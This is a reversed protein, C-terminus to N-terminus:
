NQFWQEHTRIEPVVINGSPDEVHLVCGDELGQGGEDFDARWFIRYGDTTVAVTSDRFNHHSGTYSEFRRSAYTVGHYHVELHLILMPTAGAGIANPDVCRVFLYELGEAQGRRTSSRSERQCAPLDCPRPITGADNAVADCM